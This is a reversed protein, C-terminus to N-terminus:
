GQQFQVVPNGVLSSIFPLSQGQNNIFFIVAGANDNPPRADPFPIGEPYVDPPTMQPPRPDLCKADVRLGDWEVFMESRRHRQSCRDCYFYAGGPRYHDRTWRAARM